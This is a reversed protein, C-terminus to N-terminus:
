RVLGRARLRWGNEVMALGYAAGAIAGVARLVRVADGDGDDLLSGLNEGLAAGGLTGMATLGVVDGGVPHESPALMAEFGLVAAVACVSTQLDSATVYSHAAAHPARLVPYLQTKM